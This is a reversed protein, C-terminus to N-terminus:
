ADAKEIPLSRVVKKGTATIAFNNHQWHLDRTRNEKVFGARVLRKTWRGAILTGAGNSGNAIGMGHRSEPSSLDAVMQLRNMPGRQDLYQLVRREIPWLDDPSKIEPM